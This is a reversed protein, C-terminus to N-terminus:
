QKNGYSRSRTRINVKPRFLRKAANTVCVANQRGDLSDDRFFRAFFFAFFLFSFFFVSAPVGGNLGPGMATKGAGAERVFESFKEVPRSCVSSGAM